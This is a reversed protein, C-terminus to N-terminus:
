DEAIKEELFKIFDEDELNFLDPIPHNRYSVIGRYEDKEWLNDKMYGQQSAYEYQLNHILQNFRIEPHKEWIVELLSMLYIRFFGKM